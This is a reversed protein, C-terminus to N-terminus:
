TLTSRKPLVDAADMAMASSSATFHPRTFGPMVTINQANPAPKVQPLMTTRHYARDPEARPLARLFDAHALIQRFSKGRGAGHEVRDVCREADRQRGEHEVPGFFLQGRGLVCLGRNERVAGRNEGDHAVLDVAHDGGRPMREA